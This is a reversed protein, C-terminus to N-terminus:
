EGMLPPAQDPSKPWLKKPVVGTKGSGTAYHWLGTSGQIMLPPSSPMATPASAQPSVPSPMGLAPAGVPSKGATGLGLKAGISAAGASGAAALAARTLWDPNTANSAAQQQAPSGQPLGTVDAENLMHQAWAGEFAGPAAAGAITGIRGGAGGVFPRAARGGAYGLVGSAIPAGLTVGLPVGPYKEGFPRERLRKEEALARQQAEQQSTTNFNLEQQRRQADLQAKDWEAQRAQVAGTISNSREELKNLSLMDPAQARELADPKNQYRRAALDLRKKVDTIQKNLDVLSAREDDTITPRGAEAAGAEGMSLGGVGGLGLAPGFGRGAMGPAGQMAEPIFRAAGEMGLAARGAPLMSGALMSGESMAGLIRPDQMSPIKGPGPNNPFSRPNPQGSLLSMIDPAFRRGIDLQPNADGMLFPVLSPDLLSSDPM